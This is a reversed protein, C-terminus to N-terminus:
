RVRGIYHRSWQINNMPMVLLDMGVTLAEELFSMLSPLAMGKVKVHFSLPYSDATVQGGGSTVEDRFNELWEVLETSMLYSPIVMRLDELKGMTLKFPIVAVQSKEGVKVYPYFALGAYNSDEELMIQWGQGPSFLEDPLLLLGENGAKEALDMMRETGYTLLLRKGQVQQHQVRSGEAFLSRPYDSM